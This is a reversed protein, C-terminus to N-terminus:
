YIIIKFFFLLLLGHLDFNNDSIFVTQTLCILKYNIHVCQNRSNLTVRLSSGFCLISILLLNFCDLVFFLLLFGLIKILACATEYNLVKHM